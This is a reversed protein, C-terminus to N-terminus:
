ATQRGSVLHVIFAAAALLLLIHIMGSAIHFMLFAGIWVFFFVLALGLFAFRM